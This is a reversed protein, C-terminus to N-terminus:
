HLLGSIKPHCKVPRHKVTSLMYGVEEYKRYIKCEVSEKKSETLFEFGDLTINDIEHAAELFKREGFGM